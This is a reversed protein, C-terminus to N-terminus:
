LGGPDACVHRPQCPTQSPERGQSAEIQAVVLNIVFPGPSHRIEPLALRQRMHVQVAVAEAALARLQELHHQAARHLDLELQELGLFSWSPPCGSHLMPPHISRSPQPPSGSRLALRLLQSPPRSSGNQQQQQQQAALRNLHLVQCDQAARLREPQQWWAGAAHRFSLLLHTGKFHLTQHSMRDRAGTGRRLSPGFYFVLFWMKM